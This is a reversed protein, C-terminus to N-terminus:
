VARRPHLSALAHKHMSGGAGNTLRQEGEAPEGAELQPAGRAALVRRQDALQAGRRDVVL